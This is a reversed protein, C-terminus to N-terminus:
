QIYGLARLEDKRKESLETLNEKKSEGSIVSEEHILDLQRKLKRMIEPLEEALNVREGTDVFTDFLEVKDGKAYLFYKGHRISQHPEGLYWPEESYIYQEQLEKGSILPFLSIGEAQPLRPIKAIDLITPLLDLLSVQNLVVKGAPLVGPYFFILPVQLTERYLFRHLFKGHETFEEGHDSIIIILTNKLLGKRDLRGILSGLVFDTYRIEGDYLAIYHQIDRSSFGAGDVEDINGADSPLKWFVKHLNYFDAAGAATSLEDRNSIISGNYDPDYLTDYPAPPTYPDHIQYTHFFIFVPLLEKQRNEMWRVIRSVKHPDISDFGEEYHQFGRQFGCEAAVQGGGTFAATAYGHQQLVEALTRWDGSLTVGRNNTYDWHVRHTSPYLSTFMTMHSPGTKPSQSIVNAFRVGSHALADIVPSTDRHYGYCSLHDARLTDLSILIINPMKPTLLHETINLIVMVTLCTACMWKLTSSRSFWAFRRSLTPLDVRKLIWSMSIIAAVFACISFLEPLHFRVVAEPSFVITLFRGIQHRHSLALYAVILSLTLPLYRYSYGCENVTRRLPGKKKRHSASKRAFAVISTLLLVVILILVWRNMSHNFLVIAFPTIRNIARLGSLLQYLANILGILFGVIVAAMLLNIIDIIRKRTM